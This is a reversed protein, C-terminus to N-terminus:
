IEFRHRRLWVAVSVLGGAAALGLLMGVYDLESWVPGYMYFGM